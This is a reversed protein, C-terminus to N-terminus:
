KLDLKKLEGWNDGAYAETIIAVGETKDMGVVNEMIHKIRPVVKSVLDEKIEYVLEDHVQLLPHVGDGAIRDRVYEDVRVMALKIIDAETGQIPANIAMREAAARIYPISSRLGEFYRRRGFLTETYGREATEKKVKDLYDALSRFKNFYDDYFKQAEARGITDAGDRNDAALNTRLANVGMGYMIGFNIVKARRRMEKDVGDLPVGFVESAVATHVDEGKKFIELLREDKSLFAAIRLEIQSYDFTVIKYGKDAIFSKRIERGLPNKIPINQLNPNQSAMRGTTTGAQLLTTHLRNKDDLLAPINDIYTSLLKQLERYSLLIRIIPYRSELKVLESERTSRSGGETKKLGKTELGMKDFLIEALQKPSNINFKNGSLSFIEKELRDLEEHYKVSLDKLRDKDILVGRKDMKEVVDILPLEIEEYVFSLNNKKIDALITEGAKKFETTRAYRLVDEMNPNSLNSDLLWLAISIKKLERPNVEERSAPAEEKKIERLGFVKVVREKMTRFELESFLEAAKSIDIAKRFEQPLDFTVPVDKKIEALIKSFRAEDEGEKLLEIVRPTIGIAKFKEDSKKIEKYINELTGFEKVLSTATKDGIGKVGIINDSPDGRLGKYDPLLKPAFGYREKVKDEDYLITDSIGKKLTYVRTKKGKVLQLTDMDGSAIVIETNKDDELQKVITGLLDDAEYGAKEYMPIGFAGFVDRSRIIQSVLADDAKKRGAKYGDYAEHRYTKEPRDFCAALYDPKLEEIIKLIMACLGYLGGTPEGKSSAFEPLAHYARHLIAHADFLVLRKKSKESVM